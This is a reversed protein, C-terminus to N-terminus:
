DDIDLRTAKSFDWIEYRCQSFLEESNLRFNLALSRKVQSLARFHFLLVLHM